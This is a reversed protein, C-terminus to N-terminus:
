SELLGYEADIRGLDLRQSMNPLHHNWVKFNPTRLQFKGEGHKMTLNEQTIPPDSSSQGAKELRRTSARGDRTTEETQNRPIGIERPDETSM